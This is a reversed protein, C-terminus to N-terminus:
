HEVAPLLDHHLLDASKLARLNRTLRAAGFHGSMKELKAQWDPEEANRLVEQLVLHANRMNGGHEAFFPVSLITGASIALAVTCTLATWGVRWRTSLFLVLASGSLMLGTLWSLAFGQYRSELPAAFLLQSRACAVAAVSLLGYVALAVGPGLDKLTAWPRVRSLVFIVGCAYVLSLLGAVAPFFNRGHFADVPVLPAGLISLGAYVVGFPHESMNEFGGYSKGRASSIFWLGVATIFLLNLAYFVAWGRGQKEPEALLRLIIAPVLAWAVFIGNGMTFVCLWAACIASGFAALDSRSRALVVASFAVALPLIFFPTQFAWLFNQWQCWSSVALALALNLVVFLIAPLKWKRVFWLLLALLVFALGANLLLLAKYDGHTVTLIAHSWLRPLALCHENHLAFLTRADIGKAAWALRTEVLNWDDNIPVNVGYRFVYSFLMFGGIALCVAGTIAKAPPGFSAATGDKM